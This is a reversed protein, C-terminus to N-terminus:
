GQAGDGLDSSRRRQSAETDNPDEMDSAPHADADPAASLDAARASLVPMPDGAVARGRGQQKAQQL